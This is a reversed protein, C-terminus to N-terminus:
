MKFLKFIFSIIILLPIYLFGPGAYMYITTGTILIKVYTFFLLLNSFSFKRRVLFNYTYFSLVTWLIFTGLPGFDFIFFGLFTYFQMTPAGLNSGAKLVGSLDWDITTMGLLERFFHLTYQGHLHSKLDFCYENFNLFGEGAYRIMFYALTFDSGKTETYVAQRALTITLLMGFLLVFLIFGIKKIKKVLGKDLIPLFMLFAVGFLLITWLLSSRSSNVFYYLNKVLIVLIIGLGKYSILKKEKILVFLVLISFENILLVFRYLIKSLFSFQFRHMAMESDSRADHVESFNASVNGSLLSPLKFLLEIFPLISVVLAILCIVNIVKLNYKLNYNELRDFKYLPLCIIFFLVLYYIFPFLTINNFMSLPMEYYIPAFLATVAYISTVLFGLNNNGKKLSYFFLIIFGILNFILASLGDM